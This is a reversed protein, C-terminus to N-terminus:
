PCASYTMFRSASPEHLHVGSVQTQQFRVGHWTSTAKGCQRKRSLNEGRATATLLNIESEDREYVRRNAPRVM